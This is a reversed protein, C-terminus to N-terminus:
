YSFERNTARGCGLITIKRNNTDIQIVQLADEKATGLSTEPQWDEFVAQRCIIVNFGEVLTMKETHNHGAIYGVFNSTKRNSFDVAFNVGFDEQYVSTSDSVLKVSTRDNFAKIMKILSKHNISNAENQSSDIPVHSFMVVHYDDPCNGLAEQAIWKLQRERFGMTGMGYYKLKGASDVITPNDISDLFIIRIKHKTYDKYGYLSDGDRVEGYNCAKTRYMSKFDDATIVDSLAPKVKNFDSPKQSGDDHNGRLAFRDAQNGAFFFSLWQNMITVNLEKGIRGSQVNDGGAIIVDVSDQLYALNNVKSIGDAVHQVWYWLDYHNDTQYGISILNPNIKNKLEDLASKYFVEPVDLPKVPFTQNQTIFERVKFIM